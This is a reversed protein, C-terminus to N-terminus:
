KFSEKYAIQLTVYYRFYDCLHFHPSLEINLLLQFYELLDFFMLINELHLLQTFTSLYKGDSVLVVATCYNLFLTISKHIKVTM